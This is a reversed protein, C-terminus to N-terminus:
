IQCLSKANPSVLCQLSGFMHTNILSHLRERQWKLKITLSNDQKKLQEQPLLKSTLLNIPKKPPKLPLDKSKLWILLSKLTPKRQLKL